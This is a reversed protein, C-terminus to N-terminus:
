SSVHKAGKASRSVSAGAEAARAWMWHGVGVLGADTGLIAPRIALRCIAPLREIARRLAEQTESQLGVSGGLVVEALGLTLRVSALNQAMGHTAHELLIGMTSDGARLREFMQPASVTQGLLASAQRALATGSLLSELCHTQGCGCRQWGDIPATVCAAHGMHGALGGAGLRLRGDLVLGAGIGTSLTVFFLDKARRESGNGASVAVYEGWAAAQADNLLTIPGDWGLCRQLRERLDFGHWFPLVETNVAQISPGVTLGTAAVAVGLARGLRVRCRERLDRLLAELAQEDRPMPQYVIPELGGVGDAREPPSWWAASLKTGGVDITLVSM